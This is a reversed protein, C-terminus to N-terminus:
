GNTGHGEQQRQNDESGDPYPAILELETEHRPNNIIQILDNIDGPEKESNELGANAKSNRNM